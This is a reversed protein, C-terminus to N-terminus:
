KASEEIEVRLGHHSDGQTVYILDFITAAAQLWKRRDEVTWESGEPPLTKILGEILQHRGSRDVDHQEHIREPQKLTQKPPAPDRNPSANTAPPMVLRDRGHWFFGAQQASRMFSQRAKDAQKRAVGLSAMENELGPGQPLSLNKFRDHIARYLPVALFAEVKAAQEQTQDCIRMGLATLHITGQSLTTLGFTRAAATKLRFGGGTPSAGVHAALQDLQCSTGSLRHIAQAIEIADDLDGYPFAITSRERDESEVAAETEPMVDEAAMM